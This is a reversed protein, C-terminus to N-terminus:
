VTSLGLFRRVVEAGVVEVPDQGRRIDEDSGRATVRNWVAIYEDHFDLAEHDTNSQSSM